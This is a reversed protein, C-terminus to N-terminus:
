FTLEGCAFHMWETVKGDLFADEVLLFEGGDPATLLYAKLSTVPLTLALPM